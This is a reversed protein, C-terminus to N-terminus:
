GFWVWWRESLWRSIRWTIVRLASRKEATIHAVGTQGPRIVRDSADVSAVVRFRTFGDQSEAIPRIEDVVFGLREGPSSKLAIEGISGTLVEAVDAEEVLLHVEHGTSPAIQLLTDGRSIPAGAAKSLGEGIVYGGHPARVEARALELEALELEARARSLKAQVVAMAKRDHDAMAGRYEASYRDIDVQKRQAQLLLDRTDLTVLLQNETVIDGSRVRVSEIFGSTPASVLHREKPSIEADAAITREMPLIALLALSALATIGLVKLTLYKPGVINRIRSSLSEKAHEPLSRSAKDHLALVPAVGACLQEAFARTAADWPAQKRLEFLAVGIIRERHVLPVSMVHTNSRGGILREHADTVGLTPEAQPYVVVADQDVAEQMAQTVLATEASRKDIRTQQSTAILELKDRSMMSLAVRSSRINSQLVSVIHAIARESSDCDLSLALAEIWASQRDVLDELALVSLGDSVSIKPEQDTDRSSVPEHDYDSQPAASAM